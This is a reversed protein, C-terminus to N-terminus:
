AVSKQSVSRSSNTNFSDQQRLNARFTSVPVARVISGYGGVVVRIYGLAGIVCGTVHDGCVAAVRTEKVESESASKPAANKAM